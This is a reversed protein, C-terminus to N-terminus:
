DAAPPSTGGPPAPRYGVKPVRALRPTPGATLRALAYDVTRESKQVDAARLWATVQARSALGRPNGGAVETVAAYVLDDIDHRHHYVDTDAGRLRYVGIHVRHLSGDARSVERKIARTITSPAFDHVAALRERLSAKTFTAAKDGECLEVAAARVAM